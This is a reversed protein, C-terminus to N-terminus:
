VPEGYRELTTPGSERRKAISPIFRFNIQSMYFYLVGFLAARLLGGVLYYADDFISLMIAYLMYGYLYTCLRSGHKAKIYLACHAMGFFFLAFMTGATGLELFYFKFMTYVNTPFPVTVFTNALYPSSYNMLHLSTAMKLPFEFIHSSTIAYNGPNQVVGDFAALPGVIYSLVFYTAIGFIGGGVGLSDTDKNTFILGIYLCLFVVFPVRLFRVAKRFSEQRTRLLYIASIGFILLLLDTRGTSLIAVIVAAFTTAWFRWDRKDVALLLPVYIAFLQIINLPSWGVRGSEVAEVETARARMLLTTGAGTAAAHIMKLIFFPLSILIILTLARRWFDARMRTPMVHVRFLPTPILSALLGGFSFLFIGGVVIALTNEHLPDIVILGSRYLALDLLWMICFVFPPYLVSRHLRYNLISLVSLACIASDLWNM